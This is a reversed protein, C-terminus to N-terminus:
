RRPGACAGSSAAGHAQPYAQAQDQATGEDDDPHQSRCPHQAVQALLHHKGEVLPQDGRRAHDGPQDVLQRLWQRGLAAFRMERGVLEAHRVAHGALDARQTAFDEGAVVLVIPGHIVLAAAEAVLGDVASRPAGEGVVMPIHADGGGVPMHLTFRQVLRDQQRSRRRHQHGQETAQPQQPDAQALAQFREVAHAIGQAAPAGVAHLRQLHRAQGALQLRQQVGLVLQEQANGLGDFALPAQGVISRVLQAARQGCDLGVQLHRAHGIAGHALLCQLMGLLAGVAHVTGKLLQQHQCPHLAAKRELIAHLAAGLLHGALGYLVRAPTVVPTDHQAQRFLGRLDVQAHRRRQCHGRQAVQQVVGQAM